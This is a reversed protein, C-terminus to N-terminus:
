HALANKLEERLLPIWEEPQKKADVIRGCIEELLPRLMRDLEAALAKRTPNNNRQARLNQRGQEEFDDGLLVKSCIALNQRLAQTSCSLYYDKDKGALIEYSMTAENVAFVGRHETTLARRSNDM